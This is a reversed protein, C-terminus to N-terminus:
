GDNSRDHVRIDFRHGKFPNSTALKGHIALLMELADNKDAMRAMIARIKSNSVIGDSHVLRQPFRIAASIQIVLALSKPAANPFRHRRLSLNNKESAIHAGGPQAMVAIRCAHSSKGLAGDERRGGFQREGVSHLSGLLDPRQRYKLGDIAALPKRM